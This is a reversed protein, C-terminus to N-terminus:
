ITFHPPRVNARLYGSVLSYDCAEQPQQQTLVTEVEDLQRSSLARLELPGLVHFRRGVLGAVMLM